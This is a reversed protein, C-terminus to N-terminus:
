HLEPKINYRSEYAANGQLGGSHVVLISAGKKLRKNELLYFVAFMLKSTYIYDLPLNYWNEFEQKFTVLEPSYAAYGGFHFDSLIASRSILGENEGAEILPVSFESFWKNADNLLDNEGKLVSIGIIVQHPASSIKIGSYTCATGCACFVYDYSKLDETLIESCGKVGESNNAGEPLMYFDGFKQKLRDLFGEETKHTYDERSVFHFKMGQQKAFQLTPSEDLMKEEGRIVALCEFGEERCIASLSYIHNSHAGGFTLITTAGLERARQLNYKLKFYKNGGYLPHILDLRLLDIAQRHHYITNIVPVYEVM